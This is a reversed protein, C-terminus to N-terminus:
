HIANPNSHMWSGSGDDDYLSFPDSCSCDTLFRKSSDDEADKGTTFNHYSKTGEFHSLCERFRLLDSSACRYQRLQAHVNQISQLGLLRTSGPEAFDGCRAADLIPGQRELADFLLKNMASVEVFLYTPLLYSYRRGSCASRSNFPKTVRTLALIRVDPPLCSNVRDIITARGQSDLPINLKM